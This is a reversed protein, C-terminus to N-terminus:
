LMDNGTLTWRMDRNQLYVAMDGERPQIPVYKIEESAEKWPEDVDTISPIPYGPGVKMVYGTQIKEKEQVGPPLYLGSRTIESVAEPKLLVRDGVM